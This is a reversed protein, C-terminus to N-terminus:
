GEREMMKTKRRGWRQPGFDQPGSPKQYEGYGSLELYRVLDPFDKHILEPTESIGAKAEKYGYHRMGYCFNSCEKLSYLKPRLGKEPEGIARRVLMHGEPISDPPDIYSLSHPCSASTDPCRRCPGELVAKITKGHPGKGPTHGFNPDMLRTDSIYGIEEEASIIIDRYEEQDFVPSTVTDKFSFAPWEAICIKDSNPFVAFWAIAWPKRDHPDQVQILNFKRADWCQQHYDPLKDLENIDNWRTYIRGALHMFEGSIRAAREEAPWLAIQKEIEQTTYQGGKHRDKCNDWIDGRVVVVKGVKRGDLMLYGPDILEEKIWAAYNLPTCEIIILAAGRSRSVTENFFDRPPPESFTILGKTHGVAERPSQNYSMVDWDWGTTTEGQSYYGMGQGRRQTYKGVPFQRELAKQWPGRDELVKTPACFRASKAHPWRSGIKATALSPNDTGFMIASVGAGLGFTKGSGNGMDLIIIDATPDSLAAFFREQAPNYAIFDVPDAKAYYHGAALYDSESLSPITVLGNM